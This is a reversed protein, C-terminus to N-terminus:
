VLFRYMPSNPDIVEATIPSSDMRQLLRVFDDPHTLEIGVLAPGVERNSRKIYEFHTIDDDPGLVEDLFRRL